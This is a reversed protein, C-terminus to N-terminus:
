IRVNIMEFILVKSQSGRSFDAITGDMSKVNRSNYQTNQKKLESGDYNKGIFPTTTSWNPNNQFNQSIADCNDFQTQENMLNAESQSSRIEKYKSGNASDQQGKQSSKKYRMHREEDSVRYMGDVSYKTENMSNLHDIKLISSKHFAQSTDDYFNGRPSRTM